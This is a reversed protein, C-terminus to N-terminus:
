ERRADLLATDLQARVPLQPKDISEATTTSTLAGGENEWRSLARARLEADSFRKEMTM